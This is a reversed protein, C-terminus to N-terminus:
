DNPYATISREQPASVDGVGRFLTLYRMWALEDRVNTTARVLALLDKTHSLAFLGTGGIVVYPIGKEVLSAEIERAASMTRMLIKNTGFADGSNHAELITNTVWDAEEFTSAFHRMLPKEGEGRTGVLHKDYHLPSQELLWNALDLIRQGSRYNEELKLM